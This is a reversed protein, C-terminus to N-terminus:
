HNSRAHIAAAPSANAAGVSSGVARHMSSALHPLLRHAPAMISARHVSRRRFANVNITPTPHGDAGVMLTSYQRLYAAPSPTTDPRQPIHHDDQAAERRTNELAQLVSSGLRRAAADDAMHANLLMRRRYATILVPFPIALDGLKGSQLDEFLKVVPNTVQQQEAGGATRQQRPSPAVGTPHTDKPDVTSAPVKPKHLPTRRRPRKSKKPSMMHLFESFTVEGSGSKDVDEILKRVDDRSRALGVSVLPDELEDLGVEGSGDTDLSEFWRRLLVMKERYEKLHSSKGHKDLWRHQFWKLEDLNTHHKLADEDIADSVASDDEEASDPPAVLTLRVGRERDRERQQMSTERFFQAVSFVGSARTASRHPPPRTPSTPTAEHQNKPPSAETKPRGDILDYRLQGQYRNPVKRTTSPREESRALPSHWARRHLTSDTVVSFSTPHRNGPGVGFFAPSPSSPSLMADHAFPTGDGGGNAKGSSAPQTTSKIVAPAPKSASPTNDANGDSLTQSDRGQKRNKMQKIKNAKQLDYGSVTNIRRRKPPAKILEKRKKASAKKLSLMWEPVECGSLRMVNAISRLYVMDDETFFTVAKGQRGGRGTRGIRHIYEVASQPFDYNIVMNVAKFDMGRSMLDTCILVWVAGTRFQRITEDRQEKTRDAHVTGVNMGDYLLEHYLEKAREKNQVFLLAPIQLGEQMLQKIAVLKGEEKGVFVLKQEITNAGANKTGVSIKIPDRLVSQAMEEVGQLMTASFMARQIKPNSCAALVEDIQEVFGLEFLRDAEDLCIMEVMSLDLKTEQILHVLRLPTAIVIDHNVTLNNKTHSAITAATAKSLLVIHFKRGASLRNFENYIQVSLERTPALVIARIGEQKPTGLNALMPIAFAATKGSGTPATALVDRGLVLSPIAQMQIPTPEKYESAEINKLLVARMQNQHKNLKMENFQAIANPVGTGEVRISMQRRLHTMEAKEKQKAVDADSGADSDEGSSSHGGDEIDEDNEDDPEEAAKGNKKFLAMDQGDNDDAESSAVSAMSNARAKRKKNKKNKKKTAKDEKPALLKSANRREEEIMREEEIAGESLKRKRRPMSGGKKNKKSTENGAWSPVMDVSIKRERPVPKAETKEKAADFGFFDLEAEHAKSIARKAAADDQGKKFHSIDKGFRRSDFKAGHTLANFFSSAMTTVSTAIHHSVLRHSAIRTSQNGSRIRIRELSSRADSWHDNTGLDITIKTCHPNISVADVYDYKLTTLGNNWWTARHEQLLQKKVTCKWKSKWLLDLKEQLSLNELDTIIVPSQITLKKRKVRCYLEDDEGGWGWFNNPFGNIRIFDKRCFSVIGGFFKPNESYRDWVSALHIPGAQADNEYWSALEDSPLLDVDHFIFVDYDERTIDFGANLLKGKNFKRGDMSQEMVFLHFCVM